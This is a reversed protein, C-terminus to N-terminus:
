WKVTKFQNLVPLKAEPVDLARIEKRLSRMATAYSEEEVPTQVVAKTAQVAKSLAAANQGTKKANAEAAIATNILSVLGPRYAYGDELLETGTGNKGGPGAYPPVWESNVMYNNEDRLYFVGHTMGPPAIATAIGDGLTAPAEFWEEYGSHDRLLDTGNTTYVLRAGAIKSKGAGTEFHVEIRDGESNRRVVAPVKDNGPLAKSPTHANRYPMAADHKALWAKLENLLEDRKEPHSDALNTTEGLDCVSGDDNYLNFLQIEPRKPDFGVSHYLLLKWGGKRIISSSPLPSPYHFFITDRVSGDAFRAKDDKGIMVPLVNCGDLDLDNRPKMGAMAMYTPFMDILNIPTNNVSGAKVGPGQVIFPIRLGGEYVELKGGRLPTNDTIREREGKGKGNAVPSMELGGNDSSLMIYTNEILKHGPNRPDNTTELFNLIKGVQWDLSDLMAAYYPNAQRPPQGEAILGPDTPFPIGMKKCYYTLRKRDRTSFPGHVFSPCFNLFFPKDQDKVKAMWRLSLDVVSDYPRDDDDLAYPVSPDHSSPFNALRHPRLPAWIGNFDASKLDSPDWLEPDNYPTGPGGQWAFDFGYDAPGPYGNSRGGLHWKQIHGTVYGAEKLVDVIIPTDLSLRSPYFPEGYAHIAHFPRALRGGMVHLVGTHPTYQGAMYAARSPACTPAPSYAQMFRMGSNAMRDMNPTEYVSEKGHVARYYCAPDMWGLDDTLIHVINPQSANASAQPSSPKLYTFRVESLGFRPGGWNGIGVTPNAKLRVYRARVGHFRIPSNKGDDLNTASMWQKGTARALRFPHGETKLSTWQKGNGSYEVTVDRMGCATGGVWWLVRYNDPCNFNWIWMEDLLYVSGLDFTFEANEGKDVSFMGVRYSNARHLATIDPGDIGGAGVLCSPSNMWGEHGWGDRTASIAKVGPIVRNNLVYVSVSHCLRVGDIEATVDVMTRGAGVARIVGGADVTAIKEDRSRFRCEATGRRRSEDANVVDMELRTSRIEPTLLVDLTASTYEPGKAAAPDIVPVLMVPRNVSEEKVPAGATVRYVSGPTTNWVYVGTAQSELTSHASDARSQLTLNSVAAADEGELQEVAIARGKWCSRMRCPGGKESLIDVRSVTGNKLEASVLFAGRVRVREFSADRKEPWVDFVNLVGGHAHALMSNIFEVCGVGEFSHDASLFTNNRRLLEHPGEGHTMRNKFLDLLEEGPYGARVAQSFIRPFGNGQNWSGLYRLTDRAIIRGRESGRGDLAGGPYVHDLVVPNDEKGFTSINIRNEAEKFLLKGGVVTVPYDSLRELFDQWRPRRDEDVGLEASFRIAAKLLQRVYGLTPGPNLDGPMRERQAGKIVYRGTEDLELNDEWFDMLERLFPYAHQELFERDKSFECHWILSLAALSANSKQGLADDNDEIGWPGIMVPMVIGKTDLRKALARGTPIYDQMVRAYPLIFEGRNASFLSWFPAEGNYNMTYTGGWIPDPATIWGGALGPTVRGELDISCGMVYLAGYYYREILEDNVDIWSKLWFAKWWEAHDAFLATVTDGGADDLAALAQELHKYEDKGGKVSLLLRTTQGPQVEFSLSAAGSRDHAARVNSAGVARLAVAANVTIFSTHEKRLWVTEADHTGSIIFFNRRENDTDLRLTLSAATKEAQLEFVVMDRQALAVCRVKLVGGDLPLESHVEAAAMDQVHRFGKPEGAANHITMGLRGLPVQRIHHKQFLRDPMLEVAWFDSKSLHYNVERHTGDLAVTLKGGGCIPADPITNVTKLTPIPEDYVSVYDTLKASVAAWETSKDPQGAASAALVGGVLVLGICLKLTANDIFM